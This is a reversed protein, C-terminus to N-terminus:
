LNHTIGRSTLETKWFSIIKDALIDVEIEDGLVKKANNDLKIIIPEQFYGDKVYGKEVYRDKIIEKVASHRNTEFHKIGNAIHGCVEIIPEKNIRIREPDGHKGKFLWDLLHYATLFFNFVKFENDADAKLENYDYRLKTCYDEITRLEIFGTNKKM